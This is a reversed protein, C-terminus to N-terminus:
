ILLPRCLILHNSPMMSELVHTQVFETLCHLVPFGVTSCDTSDSDSMVSCSILLLGTRWNRLVFMKRM